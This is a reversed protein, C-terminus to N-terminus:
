KNYTQNLYLFQIHIYIVKGNSASVLAFGAVSSILIVIGSSKPLIIISMVWSIRFENGSCRILM